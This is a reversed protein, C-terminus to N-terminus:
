KFEFIENGLDLLRFVALIAGDLFVIIISKDFESFGCMSCDIAIIM